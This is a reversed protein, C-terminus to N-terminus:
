RFRRSLELLYMTAYYYDPYRSQLKKFKILVATLLTCVNEKHVEERNLYPSEVTLDHPEIKNLPYTM